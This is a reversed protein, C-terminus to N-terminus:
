FGLLNKEFYYMVSQKEVTESSLGDTTPNKRDGAQILGLMNSYQGM